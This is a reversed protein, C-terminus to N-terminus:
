LQLLATQDTLSMKELEDILLFKSRREFLQNVLGAKTTNSGVVFLSEKFSNMIDTLFMTKACGPKGLLLVNVPNKSLMAKTLIWKINNHGVIEEFRGKREDHLITKCLLKLSYKLFDTM